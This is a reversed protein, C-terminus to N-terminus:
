GAKAIPLWLTNQPHVRRIVWMMAAALITLLWVGGITYVLGPAVYGDRSFASVAGAAAWSVGTVTTVFLIGGRIMRQVRYKQGVVDLRDEIQLYSPHQALQTM